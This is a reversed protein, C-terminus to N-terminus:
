YRYIDCDKDGVDPGLTFREVMPNIGYKGTGHEKKKVTHYWSTTIMMM